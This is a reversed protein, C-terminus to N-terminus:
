SCDAVAAAARCLSQAARLLLLLTKALNYKVSSRCHQWLLAVPATVKLPRWLPIHLTKNQPYHLATAASLLTLTVLRSVTAVNNTHAVVTCHNTCPYIVHSSVSRM